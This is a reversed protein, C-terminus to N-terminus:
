RQEKERDGRNPHEMERRTTLQPGRREARILDRERREELWERRGPRAQGCEDVPLEVGNRDQAVEPGIQEHGIPDDTM